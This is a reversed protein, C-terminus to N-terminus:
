KDDKDHLQVRPHAGLDLHGVRLAAVEQVRAGTHYLFLLLTRNRLLVHTSPRSAM